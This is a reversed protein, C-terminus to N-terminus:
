QQLARPCSPGIPADLGSRDASVTVAGVITIDGARALDARGALPGVADTTLHIRAGLLGPAAM